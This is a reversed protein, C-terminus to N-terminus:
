ESLKKPVVFRKYVLLFLGCCLCGIASFLLVGRFGFFTALVGGTINGCVVGGARSVDSWTMSKLIEGKKSKTAALYETGLIFVYAPWSWILVIVIINTTTLLLAYVLGYSIWGYHYMFDPGYRDILKGAQSLVVVGLIMAAFNAIGYIYSPYGIENLYPALMSFFTSSILSLVFQYGLGFRLSLISKHNPSREPNHTNSSSEASEANTQQELILQKLQAGKPIPIFVIIILSLASVCLAIFLMTHISLFTYSIGGLLIGFGFSLTGFLSFRGLMRGKELGSVAALYSKISPVYAVNLLNFCLVIIATATDSAGNGVMFYLVLMQISASGYGITVLLKINM